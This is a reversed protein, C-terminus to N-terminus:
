DALLADFEDLVKEVEDLGRLFEQKASEAQDRRFEEYAGATGYIAFSFFALRYIARAASEVENFREGSLRLMAEAQGRENLLGNEIIRELTKEPILSIDRAPLSTPNLAFSLARSRNAKLFFRRIRSKEELRFVLGRRGMEDLFGQRLLSRDVWAQIRDEPIGGRGLLREFNNTLKRAAEVKRVRLGLQWPPADLAIPALARNLYRQLGSRFPQPLHRVRAEIRQIEAETFSAAHSGIKSFDSACSGFSAFASLPMLLLSSLLVEVRFFLM